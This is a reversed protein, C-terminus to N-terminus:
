EQGASAAGWAASSVSEALGTAADRVAESAKAAVEGLHEPPADGAFYYYGRRSVEVVHDPLYLICATSLMSITLFLISNFVFKETPTLMYLSFTVEYQYNKKQLWKVLNTPQLLLFALLIALLPLSLALYHTPTTPLFDM